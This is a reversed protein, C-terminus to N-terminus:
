AHGGRGRAERALWERAKLILAASAGHTIEGSMVMEFAEELPKYILELQEGEDRRHPVQELGRALFLHNKSRLMSTFPDVHGLEVWDCARLGAEEELERRAAEAPTESDEIGGSILEISYAWIAYKFERVLCVEGCENLALVTAGDRIEVIGFHATSGGPRVVVDERLGVRENQFVLRSALTRYPSDEM